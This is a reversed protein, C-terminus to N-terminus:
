VGIFKSKRNKLWQKARWVLYHHWERWHIRHKNAM